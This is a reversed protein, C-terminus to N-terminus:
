PTPYFKGLKLNSATTVWAAQNWFERVVRKSENM